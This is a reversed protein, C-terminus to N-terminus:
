EHYIENIYKFHNFNFTLDKQQQKQKTNKIFEIIIIIM